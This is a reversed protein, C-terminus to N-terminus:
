DITEGLLQSLKEDELICWSMFASYPQDKNILLKIREIATNKEEQTAIPSYYSNIQTLLLNYQDFIKKRLYAGSVKKNITHESNYIKDLLDKTTKASESDLNIVIQVTKAYPTTPPLHKIARLVNDQPNCCDLLNNYNDGKINNCRSCAFYLNNWDYKLIEDGMHARFHEVNIDHPEKTECLYCKNYFIDCIAQYVDGSDYKKLKALSVPATAPRSVNFM